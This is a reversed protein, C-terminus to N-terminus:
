PRSDGQYGREIDALIQDIDGTPFALEAAERVVALKKDVDM